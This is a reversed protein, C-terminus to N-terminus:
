AGRATFTVADLAAIAGRIQDAVRRSADLEGAEVAALLKALAAKAQEIEDADM